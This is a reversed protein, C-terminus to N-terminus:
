SIFIEEFIEVILNDKVALSLIKNQKIFSPVNKTYDIPNNIFTEVVKKIFEDAKYIKFREISTYKEAVKECLRIIIEQYDSKPKIDLIKELRPMVYEFILRDEPIGEYGLINAIRKLKYKRKVLFEVMVQIFEGDYSECYYRYGRFNKFVKLTDYYGLKIWEESSERNFDLAGLAGGLSEVPQIYIVNVKKRKVKQVIGVALTRVAIIDKYGKKELVSIPLNNYFAGDLFKKGDREEQKFAPLNCSALVYDCFKGYPIENKLLEMPKKDTLNVTVLGFDYDSSRIKDEDIYTDLLKKIKSTDLGKNTIIEKSTNILNPLNIEHINLNRLNELLKEDIDFLESSKTELWVRELIEFEGQAMLAANLAGISTGAFGGIEIGLEKLAKYAGIHYAGRAGGGELVLGYM